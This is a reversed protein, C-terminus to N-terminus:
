SRYELILVGLRIEDGSKLPYLQGPQLRILNLYTFNTSNLDEIYVGDPKQSIRAHRRSVGSREGDQEALDVDPYIDQVPDTRGIVLVTKDPLLPWEVGKDRLILRGSFHIQDSGEGSKANRSINSSSSLGLRKEETPVPNSQGITNVVPVPPAPPVSAVPPLQVGCNQCFMEGPM